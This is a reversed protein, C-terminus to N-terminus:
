PEKSISTDGVVRSSVPSNGSLLIQLPSVTKGTSKSLERAKITADKLARVSEPTLKVLVAQKGAHGRDVVEHSKSPHVIVPGITLPM